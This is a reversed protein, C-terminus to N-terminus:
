AIAELIAPALDGVDGAGMTLCLDGSRLNRALEQAPSSEKPLFTAAPHGLRGAAAVILDGEVGSLPKERAAYVPLVYLLDCGLFARAFEESLQRTRSFLHPQFLVALRGKAVMRAAQLAASVEAPHHAYDDMVTIGAKTGIHELRRRMGPFESLGKVVSEFPIEEELALAAAALANSINHRGPVKLQVRGLNKGTKWISFGGGSSDASLDRAQYDGTSFGFTRVRGQLRKLVRQVGGDEANVIAVGHFPLQHLFSVFADDVAQQTGYVDLHDSDINTVLASVPSLSLFARDYEDAEVVLYEGKGAHGAACGSWAGGIVWGPDTGAAQLIHALMGSTTTKGHTGAVALGHRGGMLLGLLDARRVVPIGLERSRVLEPNDSNVAASYIVADSGPQIQSAAHGVFAKIGKTRLRELSPSEVKDSGQVSFGLELFTEALASMGAGGLGVFHLARFRASPKM